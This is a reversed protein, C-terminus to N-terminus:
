FRLVGSHALSLNGLASASTTPKTAVSLPNMTGSIKKLAELEAATKPITSGLGGTLKTPDQMLATGGWQNLADRLATYDQVVPPLGYVAFPQPTNPAGGGPYLGAPPKYGPITDGQMKYDEFTPAAGPVPLNVAKAMAALETPDISSYLNKASNIAEDVEKASQAPTPGGHGGELADIIQGIIFPALLPLLSAGLTCAAAGPSMGASIAASGTPLATLEGLTLGGALGSGAIPSIGEAFEMGISPAVDGILPTAAATPATLEALLSESYTPTFPVAPITELGGLGSALADLSAAAAAPVTEAFSGGALSAASFPMLAGAPTVPGLGAAFGEAQATTLPAAAAPVTSVAPPAGASLAPPVAAPAVLPAAAAPAAAETIGLANTIAGLTGEPLLSAGAIGLGAGSIWNATQRASQADSAAKAAVKDAANAAATNAALIKNQLELFAKQYAEDRSLGLAELDAMRKYLAVMSDNYESEEDARKNASLYPTQALIASLYDPEQRRGTLGYFQQPM